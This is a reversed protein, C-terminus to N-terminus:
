MKLVEFQSWIPHKLYSQHSQAPVHLHVNWPHPSEMLSGDTEPPTEPYCYIHHLYTCWTFAMRGISRVNCPITISYLGTCCAFAAVGITTVNKPIEITTLAICGYFASGGIDTVGEPIHISPLSTCGSFLGANIRTVGEPITISTLKYCGSFAGDGISTVDDPIDISPLNSCGEFTGDQIITIVQPINISALQSCGSFARAGISTVGEPIQLAQFSTCNAFADSGICIVGDPIHIEPLSKCGKFACNGISTVGDPIHIEPLSECAEFVNNEIKTFHEPIYVSLLGHCGAFKGEGFYPIDKPYTYTQVQPGFTQALKVKIFLDQSKFSVKKLQPFMTFTRIPIDTVTPEIYLTELQNGFMEDMSLFDPYKQRNYFDMSNVTLSSLGSFCFAGRGIHQISYPLTVETLYACYYFASDKISILTEPFSVSTLTRCNYFTCPEITTLSKPLDISQLHGCAEFANREINSLEPPLIISELSCGQFAETEITKISNPIVVKKIGRCCCFSFFKVETLGEPIYLDEIEEDDLILHIRPALGEHWRGFDIKCWAELDSIHISLEGTYYALADEEICTICDPIYLDRLNPCRCFVKSSIVTITNPIRVVELSGFIAEGYYIAFAYKEIHTVTYEVGDVILKNPIIAKRCEKVCGIVAATRKQKFLKYFLVGDSYGQETYNADTTLEVVYEEDPCPVWDDAIPDPKPNIIDDTNDKDTSCSSVFLCGMGLFTWFLINFFTKAM